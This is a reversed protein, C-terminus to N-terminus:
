VNGKETLLAKIEELKDEAKKIKKELNFKEKKELFVAFHDYKNNNQIKVDSYSASSVRVLQELRDKLECLKWCKKQKEYEKLM